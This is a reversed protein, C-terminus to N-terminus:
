ARNPIFYVLIPMLVSIIIGVTEESRAGFLDIGWVLNIISLVAIVLAVLAKDMSTFM